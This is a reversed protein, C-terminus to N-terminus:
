IRTMIHVYKNATNLIDMYVLAGVNENDLPSDGYPMVYGLTAVEAHPVSFLKTIKEKGEDIGWMQLFMLTFNKVADGKVMM